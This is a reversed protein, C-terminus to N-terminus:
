EGDLYLIKVIYIELKKDVEFSARCDSPLRSPLLLHAQGPQPVRPQEELRYHCVHSSGHLSYLQGATSLKMLKVPFIHRVKFWSVNDLFFTTQLFVSLNVFYCLDSILWNSCWM